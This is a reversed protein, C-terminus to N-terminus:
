LVLISECLGWLGGPCGVEGEVVIAVAGCFEVSRWGFSIGLVGEWGCNFRGYEGCLGVKPVLAVLKGGAEVGVAVDVDGPLHVGM